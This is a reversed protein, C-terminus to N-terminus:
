VTVYERPIRKRYYSGSRKEFGMAGALVRTGNRPQWTVGQSPEHINRQFRSLLIVTPRSGSKLEKGNSPVDKHASDSTLVEATGEM